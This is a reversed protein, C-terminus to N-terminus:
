AALTSRVGGGLPLRPPQNSGPPKQHTPATNFCARLGSPSSQRRLIEQSESVAPQEASRRDVRPHCALGKLSLRLGPVVSILLSFWRLQWDVPNEETGQDERMVFHRGSHQHGIDHAMKESGVYTSARAGASLSTFDHKASLGHSDSAEASVARRTPSNAALISAKAIWAARLRRPAWPGNFAPSCLPGLHGPRPHVKESSHHSPRM